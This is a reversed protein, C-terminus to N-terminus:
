RGSPTITDLSAPNDAIVAGDALHWNSTGVQDWQELDKGDFLTIWRAEQAKAQPVAQSVAFSSAVLALAFQLSRRLTMPM